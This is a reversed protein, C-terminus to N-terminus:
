SRNKAVSVRLCLSFRIETVFRPEFRNRKKVVPPAEQYTKLQVQQYYHESVPCHVSFRFGRFVARVQKHARTPTGTHGKELPVPKEGTLHANGLFRRLFIASFAGTGTPLRPKKKAHPWARRAFCGAGPCSFLD